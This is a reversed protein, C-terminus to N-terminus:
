PRFFFVDDGSTSSSHRRRSSERWGSRAREQGIGPGAADPERSLRRSPSPSVLMACALSLCISSFRLEKKGKKAQVDDCLAVTEVKKEGREKGKERRWRWRLFVSCWSGGGARRRRGARRSGRRRSRRGRRAGSTLKKEEDSLKKSINEMRLSFSKKREEKREEKTGASM